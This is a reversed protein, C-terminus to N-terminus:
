RIAKALATVEEKDALSTDAGRSCLVQLIDEQGASVATHLPSLYRCVM